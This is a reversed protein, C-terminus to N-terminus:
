TVLRAIQPAFKVKHCPVFLLTLKQCSISGTIAVIAFVIVVVVVNKIKSGDGMVSWKWKYEQLLSDHM